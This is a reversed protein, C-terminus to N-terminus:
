NTTCTHMKMISRKKSPMSRRFASYFFTVFSILSVRKNLCVVPWLSCGLTCCCFACGCFLWRVNMPMTKRLVSNIRLITDMYEEPALKGALASPFETNFRSNLGFRCFFMTSCCNRWVFECLWTAPAKSWYRSANLRTRFHIRRCVRRRRKSWMSKPWTTRVVRSHAPVVRACPVLAYLFWGAFGAPARPTACKGRSKSKLAQEADIKSPPANCASTRCCKQFHVFRNTEFINALM